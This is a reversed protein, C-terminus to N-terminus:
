WFPWPYYRIFSRFFYLFYWCFVRLVIGLIHIDVLRRRRHNIYSIGRTVITRVHISRGYNITSAIIVIWPISAVVVMVMVCVSKRDAVIWPISPAYAETKTGRVAPVSMRIPTRAIVMPARRIVSRRVIVTISISPRCMRNIISSPSNAM